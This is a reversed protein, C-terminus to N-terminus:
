RGVAATNRVFEEHGHQYVVKFSSYRYLAKILWGRVWQERGKLLSPQPFMVCAVLFSVFALLPLWSIAGAAASVALGSSVPVMFLPLGLVFLYFCIAILQDLLGMPAVAGLNPKAPDTEKFRLTHRTSRTAHSSRSNSLSPIPTRLQM